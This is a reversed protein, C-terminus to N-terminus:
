YTNRCDDPTICGKNKKSKQLRTFLHYALLYGVLAFPLALSTGGVLLVLLADQGLDSLAIVTQRFGTHASILDLVAQIEEWSLDRFTLWTGLRWSLYYQFFITFPNSVIVTFLLAAIKSSRLIFALTIALITHLPITPTIGVFIGIAVGRALVHPDGQLRIIRLYYYRITRRPEIKM